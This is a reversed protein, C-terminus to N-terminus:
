GRLTPSLRRVNRVITSDPTNARIALILLAISAGWKIVVTLTPAVFMTGTFYMFFFLSFVLLVKM